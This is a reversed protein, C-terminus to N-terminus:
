LFLDEEEWQFMQELPHFVVLVNTPEYRITLALLGIMCGGIVAFMAALTEPITVRWVMAFATMGLGLWLAIAIWYYRAGFRLAPLATAAASSFGELWIDKALYAALRARSVIAGAAAEAAVVDPAYPPALGAAEVGPGATGGDVHREAVSATRPGILTSPVGANATRSVAVPATRAIAADFQWTSIGAGYRTPDSM